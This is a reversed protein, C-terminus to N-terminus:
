GFLIVRVTHQNNVPAQEIILAPIFEPKIRLANTIMTSVGYGSVLPVANTM